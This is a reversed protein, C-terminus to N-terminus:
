ESTLRRLVTTHTWKAPVPRRTGPAPHESRLRRLVTTHHGFARAAASSIVLESPLRRLVTTHRGSPRCGARRSPRARFPSPASGDHPTWMAPARRVPTLRAQALGTESAPADRVQRAQPAAVVGM